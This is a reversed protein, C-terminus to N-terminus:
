GKRSLRSYIAFGVALAAAAGAIEVLGFADDTLRKAAKEAAAAAKDVPGGVDTAPPLESESIEVSVAVRLANYRREWDLLESDLFPLAEAISDLPGQEAVWERWRTYNEGVIAALHPTVRTPASAQGLVVNRLENWKTNLLTIRDSM